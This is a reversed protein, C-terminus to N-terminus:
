YVDTSDRITEIFILVEEDGSETHWFDFLNIYFWEDIRTLISSVLWGAQWVETKIFRNTTTWFHPSPLNKFRSQFWDGTRYKLIWAKHIRRSWERCTEKWRKFNVIERYRVGEKCYILDPKFLLHYQRLLKRVDILQVKDLGCGNKLWTISTIKSQQPHCRMTELFM